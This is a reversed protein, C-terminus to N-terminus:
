TRPPLQPSPISWCFLRPAEEPEELTGPKAQAIAEAHVADSRWPPWCSIPGKRTLRSQTPKVRDALSCCGAIRAWGLLFTVAQDVFLRVATEFCGPM